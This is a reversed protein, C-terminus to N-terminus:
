APTLKEHRWPTLKGHRRVAKPMRPACGPASTVEKTARVTVRADLAAADLLAFIHAFRAEDGSRHREGDYWVDSEAVHWWEAQVSLARM